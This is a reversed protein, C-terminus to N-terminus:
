ISPGSIRAQAGNTYTSWVRQNKSPEAQTHSHTISNRGEESDMVTQQLLKFRPSVDPRFSRATSYKNNTQAQKTQQYERKTSLTIIYQSTHNLYSIM